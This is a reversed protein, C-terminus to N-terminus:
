LSNERRKMIDISNILIFSEFFETNSNRIKWVIAFSRCFKLSVVRQFKGHYRMRRKDSIGSVLAAQDSYYYYNMVMDEYFTSCRANTISDNKLFLEHIVM